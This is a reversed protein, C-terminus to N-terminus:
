ERLGRAGIFDDGTRVLGWSELTRRTCSIRDTQSLASLWPQYGQEYRHWARLGVPELQGFSLFSRWLTTAFAPPILIKYAHCVDSSTKNSHKDHNADSATHVSATHEDRHGGHAADAPACNCVICIIADLRLLGVEGPYPLRVDSGLYDNLITAAAPGTLQVPILSGTEDLVEANKYPEVGDKEIHSLWMFWELLLEFRNSTDLLLFEEDGTRALLVVSLLAGDGTLVATYCSQGVEPIPATTAAYVLDCADSGHVVILGMHSIDTIGCGHRLFSLEEEPKTYHTALKISHNATHKTELIGGLALHEETLTINSLYSAM